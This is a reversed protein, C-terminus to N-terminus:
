ERVANHVFDGNYMSEPRKRPTEAHDDKRSMLHRRRGLRIEYESTPCSLSGVPVFPKERAGISGSNNASFCAVEKEAAGLKTKPEECGGINVNCM